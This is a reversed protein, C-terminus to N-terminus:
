AHFDREVVYMEYGYDKPGALDDVFSIGRETALERGARVAHERTRFYGLAHDSSDEPYGNDYSEMLVYLSTVNYQEKIVDNAANFAAVLAPTTPKLLSAYLARQLNTVAANFVNFSVLM